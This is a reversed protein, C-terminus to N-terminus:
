SAWRLFPTAKRIKAQADMEVRRLLVDQAIQILRYQMAAFLQEADSISQHFIAVSLASMQLVRAYGRFLRDVGANRRAESHLDQIIRLSQNDLEAVPDTTKLLAVQPYIQILEQTPHILIVHQITDTYKKLASLFVTEFKEARGNNRGRRGPTWAFYVTDPSHPHVALSLDGPRFGPMSGLQENLSKLLEAHEYTAILDVSSLTPDWQNLAKIGGRTATTARLNQEQAMKELTSQLATGGYEHRISGIIVEGQTHRHTDQVHAKWDDYHRFQSSIPINMLNPFKKRPDRMAVFEREALTMHAVTYPNFLNELMRFDPIKKLTAIRIHEVEKGDAYKNTKAANVPEMLVARVIAFLQRDYSRSASASQFAEFKSDKLKAYSVVGGSFTLPPFPGNARFAEKLAAIGAPPIGHLYAPLEAHPNQLSVALEAFLTESKTKLDELLGELQLRTAELAEDSDGHPVQLGLYTEDGGVNSVVIESGFRKAIVGEPGWLVTLLIRNLIDRGHFGLRVGYAALDDMDLLAIQLDQGGHRATRIAKGLAVGRSAEDEQPAPLLERRFSRIVGIGQYIGIMGLAAFFPVNHFVHLLPVTLISFLAYVRFRIWLNPGWFHASRLNGNWLNSIWTEQPDRFEILRYLFSLALAGSLMGATGLPWGYRSPLWNASLYKQAHDAL